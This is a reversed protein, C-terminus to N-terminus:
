TQSRSYGFKAFSQRGKRSELFRLFQTAAKPDASTTLVLAPVPMAKALDAPLPVTDMKDPAWYKFASWGLAVHVKGSTMLAAVESCCGGRAVTNRHIAEAMGARKLLDESAHGIQPKEPDGLGIKVGPRALDALSAIKLPNGKQVAIAVRLYAVVAHDKAALGEKQAAEYADGHASVLLDGKEQRTRAFAEKVKCYTLRVPVGTQKQYVLAAEDLAPKVADSAYVCLPKSPSAARPAGPGAPPAGAAGTPREHAVSCGGMVVLVAVGCLALREARSYRRSM